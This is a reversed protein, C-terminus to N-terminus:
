YELFDDTTDLYHVICDRLREYCREFAETEQGIPDDIEVGRHEPDFKGILSIREPPLSTNELLSSVHDHEMVFIRTMGSLDV